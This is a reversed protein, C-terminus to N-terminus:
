SQLYYLGTEADYRYGRYRYPNKVGVASALSGTTSLINGWADYTYEVVVAGTRDFLGIIDGQADKMYYYETGNLNMSMLDNQPIAAINLSTRVM